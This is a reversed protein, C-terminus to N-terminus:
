ERAKHFGAAIAEEESYFEVRHHAKVMNYYKMGPLHYRKSDSNGIVQTNLKRAPLAPAEQSINGTQVGTTQHPAIAVTSQKKPVPNKSESQLPAMDNGEQMAIKPATEEMAPAKQTLVTPPLSKNVYVDNAQGGLLYLYALFLVLLVAAIVSGIIHSNSTPRPTSVDTTPKYPSDYERILFSLQQPAKMSKHRDYQIHYRKLVDDYDLELHRTYLRLYGPIVEERSFYDFDDKELAQILPSSIHTARSIDELSIKRAEREKQLYEGLTEEAHKDMNEVHWITKICLAGLSLQLM